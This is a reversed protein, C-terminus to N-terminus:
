QGAGIAVSVAKEGGTGCNPHEWGTYVSNADYVIGDDHAASVGNPLVNFGALNSRTRWAINHDACSSDGSVGIAGVIVNKGKVKKYLGLGGGFGNIGGIKKGVLPDTATGYRVPSGYYAIAPDMPNSHQLGFLSGGPQIPGYLNATSLALGDLSFANATYAKQASILRSGPWQKNRDAGSYAVACVFGDRNVVSAWMELGFGGNAQSQATGLATKLQAYTPLGQCIKPTASSAAIASTAICLLAISLGCIKYLSKKM